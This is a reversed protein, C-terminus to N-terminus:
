KNNILDWLLSQWNLKQVNKDSIMLSDFYGIWEALNYYLSLIGIKLFNYFMCCFICTSKKKLKEPRVSQSSLSIKDFTSAVDWCSYKSLKFSDRVVEFSALSLSSDFFLQIIYM